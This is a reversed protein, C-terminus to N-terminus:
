ISPRGLTSGEIDEVQVMEQEEAQPEDLVGLVEELEEEGDVVKDGMLIQNVRDLDEGIPEWILQQQFLKPLQMGQKRCAHYYNTLLFPQAITPMPDTWKWIVDRTFVLRRMHSLWVKFSANKHEWMLMGAAVQFHSERGLMKRPPRIPREIEEKPLTGTIARALYPTQSWLHLGSTARPNCEIPFIGDATEIFDFAIQGSFPPLASVFRQIYEYVPPHFKQQFFVSSSGDITDLVPYCGTAEVQGGRVISYSCYRDGVLWEQAIQPNSPSIPINKPIPQGPHLHHVGTSARGFVPKLAIGDPYRDMPIQLVDDMSTCLHAEPVDLGIDQTLKSFEFKHHLRLLLHFPPAFLRALIDPEDSDALYFIEEHIPIILDIKWIRIMEKVARVYARSDDHPAPVQASAVSARSFKCIPYGLPDVCYVKHGANKFQRAIDLSVPFRGNTLLIRLPQHDADSRKNKSSLGCSMQHIFIGSIAYSLPQEYIRIQRVNGTMRDWTMHDFPITCHYLVDNSAPCSDDEDEDPHEAATASTANSKLSTRRIVIRQETKWPNREIRETAIPEQKQNEIVDRPEVSVNHTSRIYCVCKKSLDDGSFKRSWTPRRQPTNMKDAPSDTHHTHIRRLLSNFTM